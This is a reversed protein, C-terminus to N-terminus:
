SARWQEAVRNVWDAFAPAGQFRYLSYEPCGPLVTVYDYDHDPAFLLVDGEVRHCLTANANAERAALYYAALDVPIGGTQEFAWAYAEIFTGDEEALEPTLVAEHSWIWTGRPAGFYEVIGGFSQLLVRHQPHLGPPLDKVAPSLWGRHQGGPREWSYLTWAESLLRVETLSAARLLDALAPFLSAFEASAPAWCGPPLARVPRANPRNHTFWPVAERFANWHREMEM